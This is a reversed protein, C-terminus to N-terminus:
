SDQVQIRHDGLTKGKAENYNSAYAGQGWLSQSITTFCTKM